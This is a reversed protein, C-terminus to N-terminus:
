LCYQVARNVSLASAINIPDRRCPMLHSSSILLMPAAQHVLLLCVHRGFSVHNNLCVVYRRIKLFSHGILRATEQSSERWTAPKSVDHSNWVRLLEPAPYVPSQTDWNLCKNQKRDEIKLKDIRQKTRGSKNVMLYCNWWRSHTIELVVELKECFVSCRIVASLHCSIRCKRSFM